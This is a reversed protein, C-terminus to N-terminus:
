ELPEREQGRGVTLLFLLAAIFRGAGSIWLLPRLTLANALASGLLPGVFAPGFVAMQYLAAFRPRQAEPALSLLLNFGALGYGAWIFGSYFEVPILWWANPVLSWLLPLSPILLGTLGTVWAPGRHDNVRGWYRQGVINGLSNLAALIGILTPSARLERVLYVSFFPGAVMLALNWLLTVGAFAAFRPHARLLSLLRAREPRSPQLTAASPPEQIRAFFGTAVFGMLGALAFGIQYGRVGGGWEIIRGGLPTFLLAALALGINRSAFYRGRIAQPVLRAVLASWAPFGLQSVFARLAIFTAVLYSLAPGNWLLPLVALALLLVRGLGGGTLVVLRKYSGHREALRAGPLLGAAAGLNGLASIVGVQNNTAGLTVVFPYIFNNVFAESANSFLGDWWLLRRNARATPDAYSEPEPPGALFEDARFRLHSLLGAPWAFHIPMTANDRYPRGQHDGRHDGTHVRDRYPRGQHDGAHDRYPRGQHDGAHDRYPRGQHDGQM